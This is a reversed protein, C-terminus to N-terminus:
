RRNEKQAEGPEYSRNHTGIRSDGSKNTFHDEDEFRDDSRLPNEQDGQQDAGNSRFGTKLSTQKPQYADSIDLPVDSQRKTARAKPKPAAAPPAASAKKSAARKRPDLKATIKRATRAIAGGARKVASKQKGPM